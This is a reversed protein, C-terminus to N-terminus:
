KMGFGLGKVNGYHTVAPFSLPLAGHDGRRGQSHSPLLVLLEEGVSAKGELQSWMAWPAQIGWPAKTFTFTFTIGLALSFFYFKLILNTDEGDESGGRGLTSTRM